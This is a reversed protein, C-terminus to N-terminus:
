RPFQLSTQNARGQPAHESILFSHSIEREKKTIVQIYNGDKGAQAPNNFM